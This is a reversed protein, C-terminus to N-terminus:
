CGRGGSCGLRPAAGRRRHDAAPHLATGRRPARVPQRRAPRHRGAAARQRRAARRHHRRRRLVRRLDPGPDAAGLRGAHEVAAAVQDPRRRAGGRSPFSLLTPLLVVAYEISILIRFSSSPTRARVPEAAGRHGALQGAARLRGVARRHLRGLRHEVDPGLPPPQQWTLAAIVTTVNLLLVAISPILSVVIGLPTLGRVSYNTALDWTALAGSFVAIPAAVLLLSRRWAMYGQMLPDDIGIASLARQEAPSPQVGRVGGRSARRPHRGLGRVLERPRSSSSTDPSM